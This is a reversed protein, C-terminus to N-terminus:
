SLSKKLGRSNHIIPLDSVSKGNTRYADGAVNLAKHSKCGLIIGSRRKEMDKGAAAKAGAAMKQVKVAASSTILEESDSMASFDAASATVVSWEISAESPAYVCSSLGDSEQRQLLPNCKNTFSEIEFLDSSADSETDKYTGDSNVPIELEEVTADSDWTWMTLSNKTKHLVPSGFVELSKRQKGEEPELSHVNGPKSNLVPFSFCEERSLGLGPRDIKKSNMEEMIWPNLQSKKTEASGVTEAGNQIPEKTFRKAQVEYSASRSSNSESGVDVSDKGNCYCSCGLNALLSKGNRKNTKREPPNRAVDKLLLSQSNWSSDSYISATGLQINPKMLGIEVPKVPGEEVPEEKMFQYRISGGNNAAKSDENDMGGNFYKEAEFVGIEGDEKKKGFCLGEYISKATLGPEAVALKSVFTKESSNLYSSFSDDARHHQHNDFSLPQSITTTCGSKLTVMAM